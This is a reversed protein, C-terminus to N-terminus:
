AAEDGTLRVHGDVWHETDAALDPPTQDRWVIQNNRHAGQHGAPLECEIPPVTSVESSCLAPPAPVPAVFSGTM